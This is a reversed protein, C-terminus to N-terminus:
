SVTNQQIEALFGQVVEIYREFRERRINHGAGTIHVIQLHPLLAKIEVLDGAEAAAGRAHDASLLLAPCTIQRLLIPFNISIIDPSTFLGTINLSYRHKANVWPDLEAESWSPNNARGEALLEDRTKRKDAEIQEIMLTMHEPRNHTSFNSVWFAPPDELLIAGPLDPFLGALLLATMAGMSHGLLFPKNLGLAQILAACDTALNEFTYGHQPAESKGHGRADVMVVDYTVSLVEAVPLWCLGDDTIGHLLVLPPKEGGTRYYHINIGNALVDASILDIMMM